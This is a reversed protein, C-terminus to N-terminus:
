IAIENLDKPSNLLGLHDRGLMQLTLLQLLLAHERKTTPVLHIIDCKLLYESHTPIATARDRVKLKTPDIWHINKM